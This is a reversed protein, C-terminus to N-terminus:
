FEYTFFSERHEDITIKKFNAGIFQLGYIGVEKGSSQQAKFAITTPAVIFYSRGTCLNGYNRSCYNNLFDRQPNTLLYTESNIGTTLVNKLTEVKSYMVEDNYKDAKRKPTYVIKGDYYYIEDNKSKNLGTMGDILLNKNSKFLHEIPKASSLEYGKPEIITLNNSYVNAEQETFQRLLAQFYSNKKTCKKINVDQINRSFIKCFGVRFQEEEARFGIAIKNQLEIAKKTIFDEEGSPVIVDNSNYNQALIYIVVIFIGIFLIYKSM